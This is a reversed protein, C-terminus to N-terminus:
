LSQHHLKKLYGYIFLILLYGNSSLEKFSSSNTGMNQFYYLSRFILTLSFVQRICNIFM